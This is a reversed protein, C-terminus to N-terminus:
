EGDEEIIAKGKLEKGKKLEKGLLRDIYTSFYMNPEIPIKREELNEGVAHRIIFTNGDRYGESTRTEKGENRVHKYRMPKGDPESWTDTTSEIRIQQNATRLVSIVTWNKMHIAPRDNVTTPENEAYMFGVKQGQFLFEYWDGTSNADAPPTAALFAALFFPFMSCRM